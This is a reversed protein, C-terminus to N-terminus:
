AAPAYLANTAAYCYDETPQGARQEGAVFDRIRQRATDPTQEIEVDTLTLVHEYGLAASGTVTAAGVLAL